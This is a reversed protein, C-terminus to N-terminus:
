TGNELGNAQIIHQQLRIRDVQCPDEFAIRDGAAIFPGSTAIRGSRRPHPVARGTTEVPIEIGVLRNVYDFAFDDDCRFPLLRARQACSVCGQEVGARVRRLPENGVVNALVGDQTRVDGFRQQKRELHTAPRGAVERARRESDRVRVTCAATAAEALGCTPKRSASPFAPVHPLAFARETRFAGSCQVSSKSRSRSAGRRGGFRCHRCRRCKMAPHFCSAYRLVGRAQRALEVGDMGPMSLDTVLVDFAENGLRELAEHPFTTATPSHGLMSLQENMAECLNADDDVLLVRLAQGGTTWAAPIRREASSGDARDLMQRIKHALQDRGYPKSLLEVGPDLKGGHIIANQTYGSAFLVKMHPLMRAAQAAMETSNVPGPMVVDSFLLDIDIGSRLVTLAQQADDAKLVRYGLGTLTDIATSQVKPDDEM